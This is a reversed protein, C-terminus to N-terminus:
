IFREMQNNKNHIMVIVDNAIKHNMVHSNHIESGFEITSVMVPYTLIYTNIQKYLINDACCWFSYSLDFKEEEFSIVFKDLLKKAGERTILYCGTGPYDQDRKKILEQQGIYNENYMQIILPHSNTFIQLMEIKCENRIEYDKIINIIKNDNFRIIHMDDEIVFFYEDGDEYGKKLAYLHSLICAYESKINTSDKNKIINEFIITEPTKASIRENKINILQKEMFQRRNTSKDINIWYYKM